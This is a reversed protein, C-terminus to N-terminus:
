YLMSWNPERKSQHKLRKEDNNISVCVKEMKSAAM